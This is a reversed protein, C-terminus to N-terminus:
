RDDAVVFYGKYKKHWDLSATAASAMVSGEPPLSTARMFVVALLHGHTYWHLM